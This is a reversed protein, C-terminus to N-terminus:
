PTTETQQQQAAKRERQQLVSICSQALLVHTGDGGQVGHGEIVLKDETHAELSPKVREWQRLAICVLWTLPQQDPVPPLGKPLATPATGTMRFAVYTPRTQVTRLDPRCVLTIKVPAEGPLTVTAPLLTM